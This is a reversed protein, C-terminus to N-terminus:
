DGSQPPIGFSGPVMKLDSKDSLSEMRAAAVLRPVVPEVFFHDRNAIVEIILM